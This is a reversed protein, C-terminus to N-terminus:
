PQGRLESAFWDFFHERQSGRGVEVPFRHEGAWRLVHPAIETEAPERVVKRFAEHEVSLDFGM